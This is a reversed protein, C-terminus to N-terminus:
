FRFLKEVVEQVAGCCVEKGEAASQLMMEMRTNLTFSPSNLKREIEGMVTDILEFYYRKYMDEPTADHFTTSNSKDLRKPLKHSHPLIPEGVQM